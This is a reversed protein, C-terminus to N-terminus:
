LAWDRFRRVGHTGQMASRICSLGGGDLNERPGWVGCDVGLVRFRQVRTDLGQVKFKSLRIYIV